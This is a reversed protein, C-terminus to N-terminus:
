HAAGSIRRIHRALSKLIEEATKTWIFPRPNTNWYAIWSRIDAELTHVSRHAGSPMMPLVPQSRDLAQIQNIV